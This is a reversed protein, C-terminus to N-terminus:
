TRDPRLFQSIKGAFDPPNYEALITTLSGMIQYLRARNSHGSNFESFGPKKPSKEMTITAQPALFHDALAPCFLTDVPGM